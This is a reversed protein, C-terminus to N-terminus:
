RKNFAGLGNGLSWCMIFEILNTEFCHKEITKFVTNVYSSSALSHQKKKTAIAWYINFIETWFKKKKKVIFLFYHCVFIFSSCDIIWILIMDFWYKMKNNMENEQYLKEFFLIHSFTTVIIIKKRKRKIAFLAYQNLKSKNNNNNLRLKAILQTHITWISDISRLISNSIYTYLFFANIVNM